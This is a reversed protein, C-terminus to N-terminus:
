HLFDFPTGNPLFYLLVAVIGIGLSIMGDIWTGNAEAKLMLSANGIARNRARYYGVLMLCVAVAAIQYIIVPGFSLRERERVRATFSRVVDLSVDADLLARRIERITGDIDAESLKGKSKLHKFANSLRDTLSSFAAM